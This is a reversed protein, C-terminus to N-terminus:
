VCCKRDMPAPLMMGSNSDRVTAVKTVSSTGDSTGYSPGTFDFASWTAASAAMMSKIRTEQRTMEMVMVAPWLCTVMSVSWSESRGRQPTM